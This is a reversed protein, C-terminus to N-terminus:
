HSVVIVKFIRDLDESYGENKVTLSIYYKGVPLSNKLPVYITGDGRVTIISKLLAANGDASQIDKLIISIQATGIIGQLATSTWPINLRNRDYDVEYMLTDKLQKKVVLSDQAYQANATELYGPNIKKCAIFLSSLLTIYAIYKM